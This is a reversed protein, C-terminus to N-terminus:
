YTSEEASPSVTQRRSRLSPFITTSASPRSSARTPLLASSSRSLMMRAAIRFACWCCRGSTMAERGCSGRRAAEGGLRGIPLEVRDDAALPGVRDLERRRLLDPAAAVGGVLRQPLHEGRRAPGTLGLPGAPARGPGAAVRSSGAAM